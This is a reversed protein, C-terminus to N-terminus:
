RNPPKGVSRLLAILEQQSAVRLKRFASSLHNRVTSQSIYLANAIAPVRDGFVLRGVVDLERTSLESLGTLDPAIESLERSVRVAEIARGLRRLMKEAEDSPEAIETEAESPLLAFAFSPPPILPVLLFQCWLPNGHLPLVRVRLSVATKSSTAEALAWLLNAMDGPEVLELISKGVVDVPRFGLFSEIDSSVRDIALDAGTTGVVLPLEAGAPPPLLTEARDEGEWIVALVHSRPADRQISRVWVLLPVTGGDRTRLLRHTEYGNLRGAMLLQLAGTPTDATFEELSRGLVSGGEPDLLRVAAPSAAVIRESPAELALAPIPSKGVVEAAASWDSDSHAQTM